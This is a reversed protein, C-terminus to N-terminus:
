NPDKFQFVNFPKAKGQIKLVVIGHSPVEMAISENNTTEYNKAAWIDRITYGESADIGIDSLDFTIRDL